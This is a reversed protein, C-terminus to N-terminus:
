ASRHRRAALLATLLAAFSALAIGCLALFDIGVGMADDGSLHWPEPARALVFAAAAAVGLAAATVLLQAGLAGAAGRAGRWWRAWQLWASWPLAVAALWATAFTPLRSGRNWRFFSDSYAFSFAWFWVAAWAALLLWPVARRM